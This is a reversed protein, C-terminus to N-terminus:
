PLSEHLPPRIRPRLVEAFGLSTFGLLRPKLPDRALAATLDPALSPRASAKMGAFDILIAGGLNRLRIQRALGPIIARNLRAQEGAKEGRAGSAAGGDIDIATLAPTPSFIARAGHALAAVPEALAAVEDEIPAFCDPRHEVGDFDSRLRAVLEFRDALIPADPHRARFDGIPGSGPARLGVKGGAEGGALVLRPGKGGQAARTIRVDVLDGEGRARGGASDPLFGVTDGLDVFVGGLAHARATIRGTYRDGVGDPADPRWITYDALVMDELLALHVVGARLTALIM